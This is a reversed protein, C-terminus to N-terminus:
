GNKVRATQQVTCGEFKCPAGTSKANKSTTRLETTLYRPKAGMVLIENLSCQAHSGSKCFGTVFLIQLRVSVLQYHDRFRGAASYLNQEEGYYFLTRNLRYLRGNM